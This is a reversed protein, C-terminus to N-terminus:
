FYLISCALKSIEARLSDVQQRQIDFIPIKDNGYGQTTATTAATTATTATTAAATTETTTTTATTTTSQSHKLEEVIARMCTMMLKAWEPVGEPTKCVVNDVHTSFAELSELAM